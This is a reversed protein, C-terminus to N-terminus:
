PIQPLGVVFERGCVGVVFERGCVGADSYANVMIRYTFYTTRYATIKKILVHNEGLYINLLRGVDKKKVPTKKAM